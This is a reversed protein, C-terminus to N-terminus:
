VPSMTEVKRSRRPKPRILDPRKNDEDLLGLLVPGFNVQWCRDRVPHLDVLEHALASGIFFRRKGFRIFGDRDVLAQETDYDIAGSRRPESFVRSSPQYVRAPPVQGLAEHPREENYRKRFRDFSRQQSIFDDAPPTATEQKLTLHMREHRGNQQPKGPEIREPTIGLRIWWISLASLGGVGTSAFPPGNDSRIAAPLGFERFASEFVEQSNKGNPEVLGECRLLYRTHADMITLPYIRTRDRTRFHGKFDVCWIANASNCQAFPQTSPPTRRRFKRSRTLGHRTLIEGITSPAPLRRHGLETLWVRLKRPGYQPRSKRARILLDEVLPNTAHPRTFPARSRDQLLFLEGNNGDEFYRSVWKYGTPRTVGFADCLATM